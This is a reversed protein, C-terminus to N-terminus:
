RSPRQPMISESRSGTAVAHLSTWLMWPPIKSLHPAGHISPVPPYVPEILWCAQFVLAVCYQVPVLVQAGSMM